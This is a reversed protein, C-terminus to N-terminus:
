LCAPFRCSPRLCFRTHPHPFPLALAPEADRWVPGPDM